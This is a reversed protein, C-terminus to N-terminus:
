GGGIDDGLLHEIRVEFWDYLLQGALGGVEQVVSRRKLLEGHFRADEEFDQVGVFGEIAVVGADDDWFRKLQRHGCGIMNSHSVHVCTVQVLNQRGMVVSFVEPFRDM